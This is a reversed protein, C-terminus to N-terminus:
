FESIEKRKIKPLLLMGTLILIEGAVYRIKMLNDVIFNNVKYNDPITIFVLGILILAFVYNKYENDRILKILVLMVPIIWVLNMVWTFPSCLLIMLIIIIWYNFESYRRANRIFIFSILALLILSWLSNSLNLGAKKQVSDIVKVLSAKSFFSISESVYLRQEIITISYKTMPFYNKLIWSDIKMDETGSEAFQSIRPAHNFIYDNVQEKGNISYMLIVIAAFSILASAAAKYQKKFLLFPILLLSYFKFISALALFIGSTVNKKNLLFFIAATLFLFTLGDIQGRELLTYFPFFNLTFVVTILVAFINKDLKSIRLWLYVALLVFFLNLYNWLHKASHYDLEAFIQFFSGIIPPYLFRSHKFQAVGDWLEWNEIIYNKYPNLGLNMVKGATYYATFDMQM